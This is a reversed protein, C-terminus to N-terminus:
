APLLREYDEPHARLYEILTMPPHGAVREVTDSVVDFEGSAVAAYSTIWGEVEWEPAGYSARSARAEEMTEAVYTIDRGTVASLQAAMQEFTLAEPGTIDYTQGDHGDSTLVATAVDAIDDRAVVAVAGDGAPGRIVGDDGCMFPIYDAYLSDRLFTFRLGTDRIHEETFYHDRAYTFTADAAASLLSLYVIRQVGAAAAADVVGRHLATRDVHEHASVFFLTDTGSLASHLAGVDDYGAVAAKGGALDPARSADRVILRQAVGVEALRQAVRGGIAGSAGTTAILSDSM